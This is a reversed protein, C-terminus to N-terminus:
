PREDGTSTRAIIRNQRHPFGTAVFRSKNLIELGYVINNDKSVRYNWIGM